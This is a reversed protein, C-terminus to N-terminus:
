VVCLNGGKAAVQFVMVEKQKRKLRRRGERGRGFGYFIAAAM